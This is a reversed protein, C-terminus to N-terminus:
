SSRPEMISGRGGEERGDGDDRATSRIPQKATGAQVHGAALPVRRRVCGNRESSDHMRTTSGYLLFILPSAVHQSLSVHMSGLFYISGLSRCAYLM